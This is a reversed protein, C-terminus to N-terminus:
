DDTTTVEGAILWKEIETRRYRIINGRKIFPPGARRYRRQALAARGMRTLTMVEDITLLDDTEAPRPQTKQVV